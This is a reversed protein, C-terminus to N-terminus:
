IKAFFPFSLVDAFPFFYQENSPVELDGKAGLGWVFGFGGLGGGAQAGGFLKRHLGSLAGM